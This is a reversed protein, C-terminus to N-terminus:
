EGVAARPALSVPGGRRYGGPPMGYQRKFAKAFAFESVYGARQAVTRLPLESDRLLRAALTMRWWTLYALPPQGVLTAFRRAFAARSLGGARGLSEVTWPHAPDQHIARLADAVAPDHLAAAWGSPARDAQEEYWARLVYLLLMDLLATLVAGAGPRPIELERGLLDVAARLEPHRGLRAPLHVVEPLDTLLPHSRSRELRYAGCLLRVSPAHAPEPEPVAFRVGSMPEPDQPRFPKLPTGPADALGHGRGHPLFVVDGTSLPIPAGTAPLLWCAGSLVVHFGAGDSEPFGTGWAGQHHTRSAHPRGGRMSTIVDSLVDM